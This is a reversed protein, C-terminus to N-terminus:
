VADNGCVWVVVVSNFWEMGDCWVMAVACQVLNTVLITAVM